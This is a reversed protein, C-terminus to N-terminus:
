CVKLVESKEKILQHVLQSRWMICAISLNHGIDPPFPVESSELLLREQFNSCIDNMSYRSCISKKMIIYIKFKQFTSILDKGPDEGEETPPMNNVQNTIVHACKRLM